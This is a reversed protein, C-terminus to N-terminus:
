DYQTCIAQLQRAMGATVVPRSLIYNIQVFQTCLIGPSTRGYRGDRCTSVVQQSLGHWLSLSTETIGNNHRATDRCNAVRVDRILQVTYVERFDKINQFPQEISLLTQTDTQTLTDNNCVSIGVRRQNFTPGADGVSALM